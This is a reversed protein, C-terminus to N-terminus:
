KDNYASIAFLVLTNQLNFGDPAIVNVPMEPTKDICLECNRISLVCNFHKVILLFVIIILRALAM